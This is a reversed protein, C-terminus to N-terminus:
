IFICRRQSGKKLGKLTKSKEMEDVPLGVEFRAISWLAANALM